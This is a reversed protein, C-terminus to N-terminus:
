PLADEVDTLSPGVVQDDESVTFPSTVKATYQEMDQRVNGTPGPSGAVNWQVTPIGTINASPTWTSAGKVKYYDQISGTATSELDIKAVIENWQGYQVDGPPIAFNTGLNCDPSTGAAGPSGPGPPSSGNGTCASPNGPQSRYACGPNGSGSNNCAGTEIAQVVSDAVGNTNSTGSTHLEWPTADGWVANFNFEWLNDGSIDANSLQEGTPVYFMMGYYVTSGVAASALPTQLTVATRSYGTPTTPLVIRGSCSGDGPPITYPSNTFTGSGNDLYFSGLYHQGPSNQSQWGNAAQPVAGWPALTGSTQTCSSNSEFNGDFSLGADTSFQQTTGDETGNPGVCGLNTGNRIGCVQYEYQTSASLGTVNCSLTVPGAPGGVSGPVQSCESGATPDTWTSTGVQRYQFYWGCTEGSDCTGTAQLTASSSGVNIPAITNGSCASLALIVGLAGLLALTKRRALRRM